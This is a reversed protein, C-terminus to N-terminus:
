HRGSLYTEIPEVRNKKAARLHIVGNELDIDTWKLDFLESTGVRIGMQSGLVIVRQIHENAHAFILAIEQQTPPIFHKYEVQPLNNIKPM